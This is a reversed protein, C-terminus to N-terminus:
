IDLFERVNSQLDQLQLEDLSLCDIIDQDLEDNISDLFKVSKRGRSKRRVLRQLREFRTETTATLYL